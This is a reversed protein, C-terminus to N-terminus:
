RPVDLWLAQLALLRKLLPALVNNSPAKPEVADELPSCATVMLQKVAEVMQLVVLLYTLFAAMCLVTAILLLMTQM